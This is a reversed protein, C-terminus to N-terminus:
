LVPMIRLKLYSYVVNIHYIDIPINLLNNMFIYNNEQCNLLFPLAVYMYITYPSITLKQTCVTHILIVFLVVLIAFRDLRLTFKSLFHGRVRCETVYNM